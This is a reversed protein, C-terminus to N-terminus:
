WLEDGYNLARVLLPGSEAVRQNHAAIAERNKAQWNYKQLQRNAHRTLCPFRATATM